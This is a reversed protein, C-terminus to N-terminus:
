AAKKPRGPKRKPVDPNLVTTVPPQEEVVSAAALCKEPSDFWGPPIQDSDFRQHMVHGRPGLTYGWTLHGM